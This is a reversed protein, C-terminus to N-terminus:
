EHNIVEYNIFETIGTDLIYDEQPRTSVSLLSSKIEAVFSDEIGEYWEGEELGEKIFQSLHADAQEKTEFFANFGGVGDYVVYKMKKHM